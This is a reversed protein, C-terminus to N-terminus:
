IGHEQPHFNEEMGSLKYIFSTGFGKLFFDKLM